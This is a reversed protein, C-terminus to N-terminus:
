NKWKGLSSCLGTSKRQGKKKSCILKTRGRNKKNKETAECPEDKKRASNSLNGKRVKGTEKKRPKRKKRKKNFAIVNVKELLIGKEPPPGREKERV